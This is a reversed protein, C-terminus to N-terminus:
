YYTEVLKEVNNKFDEYDKEMKRFFLERYQYGESSILVSRKRIKNVWKNSNQPM